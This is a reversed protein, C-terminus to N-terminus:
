QQVDGKKSKRGAAHLMRKRAVMAEGKMALLIGYDTIDGRVAYHKIREALGALIEAQMRLSVPDTFHLELRVCRGVTEAQMPSLAHTVDRRRAMEAVYEENTGVM